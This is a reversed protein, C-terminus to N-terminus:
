LYTLNIQANDFRINFRETYIMYKVLFMYYIVGTNLYNTKIKSKLDINKFHLFIGSHYSKRLM